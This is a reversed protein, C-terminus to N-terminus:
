GCWKKGAFNSHRCRGCMWDGKRYKASPLGCSCVLASGFHWSGCLCWVDDYHPPYENGGSAM